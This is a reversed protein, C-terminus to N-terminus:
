FACMCVVTGVSLKVLILVVPEIRANAEYVGGAVRGALHKRQRIAWEYALHNCTAAEELNCNIALIRPAALFTIRLMQSLQLKRCFNTYLLAM